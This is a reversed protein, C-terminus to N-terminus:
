SPNGFLFIDMFQLSFLHRLDLSPRGTFRLTYLFLITFKEPLHGQGNRQRQYKPPRQIKGLGQLGIEVFAGVLRSIRMEHTPTGDVQGSGVEM